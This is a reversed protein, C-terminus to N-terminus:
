LPSLSRYPIVLSEIRHRARPIRFVSHLLTAWIICMTCSFVRFKLMDSLTPSSVFMSEWLLPSQVPFLEYPLSSLANCLPRFFSISLLAM